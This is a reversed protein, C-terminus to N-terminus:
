ELKDDDYEGILSYYGFMLLGLTIFPLLIFLLIIGFVIGDQTGSTLKPVGFTIMFYAATVALLIWVIGFIRKVINM